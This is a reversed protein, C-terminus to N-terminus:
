AAPAQLTQLAQFEFAVPEPKGHRVARDRWLTACRSCEAMHRQLRGAREYSILDGPEGYDGLVLADVTPTRVHCELRGGFADQEYARLHGEAEPGPLLLRAFNFATGTEGLEILMRPTYTDRPIRTGMAAEYDAIRYGAEGYLRAALGATTRRTHQDPALAQLSEVWDLYACCEDLQSHGLNELDIGDRKKCGLENLLMEVGWDTATVLRRLVSFARAFLSVMEPVERGRLWEERADPDIVLKALLKLDEPGEHVGQSQLWDELVEIDRGLTDMVLNGFLELGEASHGGDYTETTAASM